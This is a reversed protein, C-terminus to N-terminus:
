TPVMSQPCRPRIKKFMPQVLNAKHELRMIGQFSQSTGLPYFALNSWKTPIYCRIRAEALFLGRNDWM